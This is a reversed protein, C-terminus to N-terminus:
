KYKKMTAKILNNFYDNYNMHSRLHAQAIHNTPFYVSTLIDFYYYNFYWQGFRINLKDTTNKINIDSHFTDDNRINKNQKVSYMKM